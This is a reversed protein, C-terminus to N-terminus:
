LIEQGAVPGPVITRDRGEPERCDRRPAAAAPRWARRPLDVQPTALLVSCPAAQLVLHATPSVLVTEGGRHEGLSLCILAAGSRGAEAIIAEALDRAYSLEFSAITGEEQCVRQARVLAQMATTELDRPAQDPPLDAPLAAVCLVILRDYDELAIRCAYRLLHEAALSGDFLVLLHPVDRM